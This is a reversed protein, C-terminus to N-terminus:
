SHFGSSALKKSKKAMRQVSEYLPNQIIEELPVWALALSERPNIKLAADSPAQLLFRIDYHFHEPVSQRALILHVDVDFIANSLVKLALIGSEEQAERLAVNLIHSDGEAHGGLQLWLGLKRHHVLLAAEMTENVIWASGTVHGSLHSRCFCDENQDVFTRIRNTAELQLPDNQCHQGYRTLKARLWERSEIMYSGYAYKEADM